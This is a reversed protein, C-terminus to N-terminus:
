SDDAEPSVAQEIVVTKTHTEGDFGTVTINKTVVGAERDVSADVTRTASQGASNTRTSTNRFGTETREMVQEGSYTEGNLRTGTVERTRIKAEPDRTVTVNREATRGDPTTLVMRQNFGNETRTREIVRNVSGAPIDRHSNKTMTRQPSEAYGNASILGSVIIMATFVTTKM